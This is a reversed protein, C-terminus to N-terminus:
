LKLKTLYVWSKNSVGKKYEEMLINVDFKLLLRLYERFEKMSVEEGYTEQRSAWKKFLKEILFESSMALEQDLTFHIKNSM